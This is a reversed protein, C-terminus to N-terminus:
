QLIEYVRQYLFNAKGALEDDESEMYERFDDSDFSGALIEAADRLCDIDDKSVIDYFIQFIFDRALEDDVFMMETLAALIAPSTVSMIQENSTAISIFKQLVKAGEISVVLVGSFLREIVCREGFLAMLDNTYLTTTNLWNLIFRTMSKIIESSEDSKAVWDGMLVQKLNGLTDCRLMREMMEDGHHCCDALIRMACQRYKRKPIRLVDVLVPIYNNALILDRYGPYSDMTMDIMNILKRQCEDDVIEFALQLIESELNEPRPVVFLSSRLCWIRRKVPALEVEAVHRYLQESFAENRFCTSEKTVSFNGIITLCSSLIELNESNLLNHLHNILGWELMNGMAAYLRFKELLALAPVELTPVGLSDIIRRLLEPTFHHTIYEFPITRIGNLHCLGNYCERVDDSLIESFAAMVDSQQDETVPFSWNMNKDRTTRDIEQLVGEIREKRYGNWDIMLYKIIRKVDCIM